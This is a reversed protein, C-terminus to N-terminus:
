NGTPIKEAKDVILVELPAKTQELRLGLQAPLAQFITQGGDGLVPISHMDIEDPPTGTRPVISGAGEVAWTLVFDYEENLGTRDVVPRGVRGSLRDALQAMTQRRATLSYILGDSGGTVAERARADGPAATTLKAGGKGAVLAYVPLDRTVRHTLLGFREALLAQLMREMQAKDSAPFRAIIDYRETEMWAPGSIQYDKLHYARMVLTKLSVTGRIQAPDTRLPGMGRGPSAPKVSAADFTQAILLLLIRWMM